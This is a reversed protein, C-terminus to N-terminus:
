RILVDMLIVRNCHNCMLIWEYPKGEVQQTKVLTNACFPCCKTNSTMISVVGKSDRKRKSSM